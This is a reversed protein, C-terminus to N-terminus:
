SPNLPKISEFDMSLKKKIKPHLNMHVSRGIPTSGYRRLIKERMM